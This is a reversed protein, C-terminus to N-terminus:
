EMFGKKGDGDADKMPNLKDLLSPKHGSTTGTSATGYNDRNSGTEVGRRGNGDSDVRPDLKNQMSSNHPGAGSQPAGPNNRSLGSTAASTGHHSPGAGSVGAGQSGTLGSSTNHTNHSGQQGSALGAAGVAAGTGVGAGIGSDKASHHSSGKLGQGSHNGGLAHELSKPEGKFFDIREDRGTLAGGGSKFEDMSVAPLSSAAHHQAKNHHIEHIPVTTHVVHPEITEKQVVPQITEHIHHHVHEGAIAPAASSTQHTEARVSQDKFQAANRALYSETDATDRHDHTRHEVPVLNHHHKEGLVERQTVPQVTTHHHDQHIERDTAIQTEERQHPSVTEHTVGPAM